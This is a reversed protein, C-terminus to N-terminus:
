MLQLCITIRSLSRYIKKIYLHFKQALKYYGPKMNKARGIDQKMLSLKMKFFNKNTKFKLIIAKCSTSQTSKQRVDVHILWLSVYTGERKFRVGVGGDGVGRWTTVSGWNSNESDYSLNGNAIQKVHPLIYLKNKIYLACIHMYHILM